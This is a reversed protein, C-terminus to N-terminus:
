AETGHLLYTLALTTTTDVRVQAGSPLPLNPESQLISGSEDEQLEFQRFPLLLGGFLLSVEVTQTAANNNKLFFHSLSGGDAPAEYLLAPTTPFGVSINGAALTVPTISALTAFYGVTAVTANNPGAITESLAAGDTDTGVFTFNVGSFDSTSTLSLRRSPTALAGVLIMPFTLASAPWGASLTSASTGGPVISTVKSFSVVGTVTNNNPGVIVDVGEPGTVTFSIASLNAASTLTVLRRPVLSAAAGTLSLGVGSAPAQAAALGTPSATVSIAQLIAVDNTDAPITTIVGSALVTPTGATSATQEIHVKLKGDATFNRM